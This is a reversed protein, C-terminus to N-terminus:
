RCAKTCRSISLLGRNEQVGLTAQVCSFFSPSSVDKATRLPVLIVVVVMVMDGDENFLLVSGLRSVCVRGSVSGCFRARWKSPDENSGVEPLKLFGCRTQIGLFLQLVMIGLELLKSTSNSLVLAVNVPFLLLWCKWDSFKSLCCLIDEALIKGLLEDWPETTDLM